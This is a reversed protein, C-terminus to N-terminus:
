LYYGVDGNGIYDSIVINSDIRLSIFYFDEPRM